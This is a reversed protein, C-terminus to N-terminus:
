KDNKIIYISSTVVIISMFLRVLFLQIDSNVITQLLITILGLFVYILTLTFVKNKVFFWYSQYHQINEFFAISCLIIFLYNNQYLGISGLIIIGILNFYDSYKKYYNKLNLAYSNSIKVAAFRNFGQILFVFVKLIEKLFGVNGVTNIGFKANVIQYEVANLGVTSLRYLIIKFVENLVGFGSKLFYKFYIKFKKSPFIFLYIIFFALTYSFIIPNEIQNKSFSIISYFFIFSFGLLFKLTAYLKIKEIYRLVNLETMVYSHLTGFFYIPDYFIVSFLACFFLIILNYSSLIINIKSAYFKNGKSYESLFITDRSFSSIVSVILSSTLFITFEGILDNGTKNRVLYFVLLLSTAFVVDGFYQLFLSKLNKYIKGKESVLKKM